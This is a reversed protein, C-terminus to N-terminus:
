LTALITALKKFGGIRLGVAQFRLPFPPNIQAPGHKIQKTHANKWSGSGFPRVAGSSSMKNSLFTEALFNELNATV